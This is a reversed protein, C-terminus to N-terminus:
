NITIVTSRDIKNVVANQTPRYKSMQTLKQFLCFVCFYVNFLNVNNNNNNNNNINFGKCAM